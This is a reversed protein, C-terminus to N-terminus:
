SFYAVVYLSFGIVQTWPIDKQDAPAGDVFRFYIKRKRILPKNEPYPFVDLVSFQICTKLFSIVSAEAQDTQIGTQLFAYLINKRFQFSGEPFFLKSVTKESLRQKSLEQDIYIPYKQLFLINRVLFGIRGVGPDFSKEPIDIKMQRILKGNVTKRFTKEETLVM